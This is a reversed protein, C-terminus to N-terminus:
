TLLDKILHIQPIIDPPTAGRNSKYLPFVEHRFTKEKLDWCVAFHSPNQEKLLKLIIKLFGFVAGIPTGDPSTLRTGMAYFSRFLLSMGDVVFLRPLQNEM